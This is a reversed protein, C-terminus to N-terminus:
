IINLKKMVDKNEKLTLETKKLFAQKNHRRPLFWKSTWKQSIPGTGKETSLHFLRPEHLYFNVSLHKNGALTPM